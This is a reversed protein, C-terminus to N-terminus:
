IIKDTGTHILDCKPEVSKVNSSIGTHFLLMVRNNYFIEISYKYMIKIIYEIETATM